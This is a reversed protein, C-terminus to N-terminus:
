RSEVREQPFETRDSYGASSANYRNVLLARVLGALAVFTVGPCIAVTLVIPSGRQWIAYRFPLTPYFANGILADLVFSVGSVPISILAVRLAGKPDTPWLENHWAFLGCIALLPLGLSLAWIAYDKGYVISTLGAVFGALVALVLLGIADALTTCNM